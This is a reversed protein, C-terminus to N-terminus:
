ITVQKLSHIFNELKDRDIIVISNHNFLYVTWSGEETLEDSSNSILCIDGIDLTYYYWDYEYGTAEATESNKIFEFELLDVETIM